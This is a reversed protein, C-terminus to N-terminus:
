NTEYLCIYHILAILVFLEGSKNRKNTTRTTSTSISTGATPYTAQYPARSRQPPRCLGFDEGGGAFRASKASHYEGHIPASIQRGPPKPDSCARPVFIDGATQTCKDRRGGQHHAVTKRAHFQRHGRKYPREQLGRHSHHPDQVCTRGVAM